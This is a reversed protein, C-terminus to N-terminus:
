KKKNGYYYYYKHKKVDVKCMLVGLIKARVADLAKKAKKAEDKKTQNVAVVLIVGDVIRSIVSADAVSLVPPVDILIIDYTERAESILKDFANTALMEAPDPPQPGSTVIHLNDYEPIKQVVDALSLKEALINTLGPSQLLNFINHLRSKRLDCELLLVKKNSAAFSIASNVISTTKGEESVSSTFM